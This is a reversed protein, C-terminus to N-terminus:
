THMKQILDILQELIPISIVVMSVKGFLEVQSAVVNQGAEKCVGSVFEALYSIGIMKLIIRVYTESIGIWEPLGRLVEAIKCLKGILMLFIMIATIIAIWIGIERRMNGIFLSLIVSVLAFIAIKIM